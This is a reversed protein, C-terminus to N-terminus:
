AAGGKRSARAARANAGRGSPTGGDGDNALKVLESRPILRRAGVTVNRLKGSNILGYISTRGLGLAEAAGDISYSLIQIEPVHSDRTHFKPDGAPAAGVHGTQEPSGRWM